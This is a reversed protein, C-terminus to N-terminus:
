FVLAKGEGGGVTVDGGGDHNYLDVEEDDGCGQQVRKKTATMFIKLIQNVYNERM